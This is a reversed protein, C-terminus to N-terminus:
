RFRTRGAEGRASRRRTGEDLRWLLLSACAALAAIAFAACAGLGARDGDHASARSAMATVVAVGLAGGAQQCSILVGSAVGQEHTGATAAAMMTAAPYICAIGGGVLLAAPLLHDTYGADTARTYLLQGSVLVALGVLLLPTLRWRTALRAAPASLLGVILGQPLFALGANLPSYGHREQLATSVLFMAGTVAAFAGGLAICAAAIWRDALLALPLLPQIARSQIYFFLAVLAAGVCGTAIVENAPAAGIRGVAYVLLTLGTTALLAQHWAIGGRPESRGVTLVRPAVVLVTASLPVYLGFAWRWGLGATVLGGAVVGLSFGFAGMASFVGLARGRAAGDPFESVILAVAAPATIAAGAGQVARAAVIQIADHAVAAGLSGAGFAAVGSLFVRRGGWRDACRGGVLLFGAYATLFASAVLQLQDPLLALDHQIDALQVNIGSLSMGEFLIATCLVLLRIWARSDFLVHEQVIM